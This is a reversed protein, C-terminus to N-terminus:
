SLTTRSTARVVKDAQYMARAAKITKKWTETQIVAPASVSRRLDATLYEAWKAATWSVRNPDSQLLAAMRDNVTAGRTRRSRKDGVPVEGQHLTEAEPLDAPTFQEVLSQVEHTLGDSGDAEGSEASLRYAEDWTDLYLRLRELAVRSTAGDTMVLDDPLLARLRKAADHLCRWLTKPNQKPNCVTRLSVLERFVQDSDVHHLMIELGKRRTLRAVAAPSQLNGALVDGAAQATALRGDRSQKNFETYRWQRFRM